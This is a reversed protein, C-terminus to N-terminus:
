FKWGVTVLFLNDDKDNGAQPRATHTYLWQFQTFFSATLNMRLTSDFRYYGPESGGPVNSDIAPYLDGRHSFTLKDLSAWQALYGVHAATYENTEGPTAGVDKFDESLWNLGLETDIKWDEGQYLKYGAGAGFGQRLDLDAKLDSMAGASGYAYLREGLNHEYKLSTENRRQTTNTNGADDKEQNVVSNFFFTWKDVATTRAADVGLSLSNVETNGTSTSAGFTVGGAWVPGAVPEEVQLPVLPADAPTGLLSTLILSHLM